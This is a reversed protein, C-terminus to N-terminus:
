KKATKATKCFQLFFLVQKLLLLRVVTRVSVMPFIKTKFIELPVFLLASENQKNTNTEMHSPTHMLVLKSVSTFNFDSPSLKDPHQAQYAQFINVLFKRLLVRESM